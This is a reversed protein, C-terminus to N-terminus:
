WCRSWGTTWARAHLAPRRRPAAPERQALRRRPQRPPGRVDGGAGGRGRPRRAKSLIAGRLAEAGSRGRRWPRGRALRWAQPWRRRQGRQAHAKRVHSLLAGALLAEHHAGPSPAGLTNSARPLAHRPRGRHIGPPQDPRPPLAADDERRRDPVRRHRPAPPRPGADRDAGWVCLKSVLSDYHPGVDMGTFLSSDVRVGPGSPESVHHIHGLSPMFGSAADEATIRCEIAWGRLEIDEQSFTLPEGSAILLQEQVLDLGTVLETM